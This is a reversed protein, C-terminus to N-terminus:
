NSSVSYTGVLELLRNSTDVAENIATESDCKRGLAKFMADDLISRLSEWVPVRPQVTAKDLSKVGVVYEPHKNIYDIYTSSKLASKRVPLYGTNISWDITVDTSCMYSVFEYAAMQKDIDSESGRFIALNTGAFQSSQTTGKPIPLVGFNLGSARAKEFGGIRSTTEIYMGAKGNEFVRSAEFTPLASADKHVLDVWYNLGETGLKGGFAAKNDKSIFTGGYSYLYHGFVDVSPVFALGPIGKKDHIAKAAKRLEQWTTPPKLGLENFINKNYYLVYISKNFPVTYLKKGDKGTFTNATLFIPVLDSVFSKDNAPILDEVPVLADIGVYQTTWNEYVQAVDPPTNKAISELIRSYLANYDNGYQKNASQICVSNVHVGPHTENFKAVLRELVKGRSRSMAHWFTIEIPPDTQSRAQGITTGCILAFAFVVLALLAIPVFRTRSVM